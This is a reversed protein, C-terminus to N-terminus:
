AAMEAKLAELFTKPKDGGQVQSGGIGPRSARLTELEKTLKAIEATAKRLLPIAEKGAVGYFTMEAIKSADPQGLMFERAEKMRREVAQNHADDGDKARFMEFVKSAKVATEEFLQSAFKSQEQRIHEQRAQESRELEALRERPNGIAKNREGVLKAADSALRLLEAQRGPTASDILREIAELRKKGSPMDFLFEIAKHQEDDVLAKASEVLEALPAEYKSRYEQSHEYKVRAIIKEKEELDSKLKALEEPEFQPVKATKLAELERKTAEYQKRLSRIGENEEAHTQTPEPADDAVAAFKGSPDRKREAKATEQQGKPAEPKAEAKAAEKPKDPAKAPENSPEKGEIASKFADLMSVMPKPQPTTEQAPATAQETTTTTTAEDAM